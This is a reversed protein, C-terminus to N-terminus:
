SWTQILIVMVLRINKFVSKKSIAYNLGFPEFSSFRLNLLYKVDTKNVTIYSSVLRM